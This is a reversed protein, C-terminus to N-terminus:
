DRVFKKVEVRNAARVKMYYVGNALNAISIESQVSNLVSSYLLSGAVDYLEISANKLPLDSCVNIVDKAPNPYINFLSNDAIERIGGPGPTEGLYTFSTASDTKLNVTMQALEYGVHNTWWSYQRTTDISGYSATEDIWSSGIKIWVSDIAITYDNKRLCSYTGIGLKLSGYADIISQVKSVSKYKISDSILSMYFTTQEVNNNTYATNYTSPLAMIKETPNVYILAFSGQETGSFGIASLSDPCNNMYFYTSTTDKKIICLNSGPFNTAYSTWLPNTFLVTDTTIKHASSFDWTQSAGANGASARLSDDNYMIFQTLPSAVDAQTLTIQARGYLMSGALVLTFLIKKM